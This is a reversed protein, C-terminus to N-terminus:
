LKGAGFGILFSAAKDVWRLRKQRRSEKKFHDAVGEFHIRNEKEMKYKEDSLDLVKNFAEWQREKEAQVSDVRSELVVILGENIPEKAAAEIVERAASLPMCYSPGSADPFLVVVVSDLDPAEAAQLTIGAKEKKLRAVTKKFKDLEKASSISDSRLQDIIDKQKEVIALISTDRIIVSDIKVQPVVTQDSSHGAGLILLYLLIVIVIGMIVIYFNKGM